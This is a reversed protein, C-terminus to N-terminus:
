KNEEKVSIYDKMIRYWKECMNYEVCGTHSIHSRMPQYSPCKINDCYTIDPKFYDFLTKEAMDNGV